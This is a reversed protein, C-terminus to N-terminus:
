VEQIKFRFRIIGHRTLGDTDRLYQVLDLTSTVTRFGNLALPSGTVSRIVQDGITKAESFGNYQSWVHLTHTVEHGDMAGPRSSWDVDTDEGISVYPYIPNSPVSDYLRAVGNLRQYLATQLPGLPSKM